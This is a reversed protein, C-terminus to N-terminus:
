GKRMSQLYFYLDPLALVSRSSRPCLGDHDLLATRTFITWLAERKQPFFDRLVVALRSGSTEMRPESANGHAEPGYSQCCGEAAIVNSCGCCVSVCVTCVGGELAAGVVAGRLNALVRRLPRCFLDDSSISTIPLSPKSPWAVNPAAARRDGHTWRSTCSHAFMHVHVHMYQNHTHTHTHIYKCVSVYM